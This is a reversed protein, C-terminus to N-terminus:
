EAEDDLEEDEEENMEALITLEELGHDEVGFPDETQNVIMSAVAVGIGAGIVIAAAKILVVKNERIKAAFAAFQQNM